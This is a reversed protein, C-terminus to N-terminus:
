DAIVRGLTRDNGITLRYLYVGTALGNRDLPLTYTRGGNVEGSFLVAVLRGRADVLDLHAKGGHAATFQLTCDTHFPNPWVNVSTGNTNAADDVGTTTGSGEVTITQVRTVTNGCADTATYTRTILYGDICDSGTSEETMTVDVEGACGDMAKCPIAAPIGDCPVTMDEPVCTLVPAQTDVMSVLQSATATNGCADTASWIRVLSYAGPCNGPIMTEDYDVEVQPDCGDEAWVDAPPVESGCEVTVADPVGHLVPAADDVVNIVQTATATNGCADTSTWTRLVKYSGACAGKETHETFTVETVQKKCADEAWVQGADEPVEGCGVTIDAPVNMLTPAIHDEITVTQVCSEFHGSEDGITWTRTLITPCGGSFADHWSAYNPAPCTLIKRVVPEGIALPELSSGCEVTTDRACAIILPGDCGTCTEKIVVVSSDATCGNPGTVTLTYFGAQAVFPDEENSQFGDVSTWHFTAGATTSGGALQVGEAECPIMDGAASVNPASFDATVAVTAYATCGNAGTVALTYFGPVDVVPDTDTSSFFGSGDRWLFTVNPSSSGGDLMVTPHACDLMGGEATIDPHAADMTVDVLVTRMCGNTATVTFTYAGPLAVSADETSASFGNPGSWAFSVGATTSSGDLLLPIHNCDIVGGTASADPVNNDLAVQASAQSSCGNDGTVVLTYTGAATVVPNQDNSTFGNPGTWAFGGNGSGMLMVSTTNCTLTGGTAQAGPVENDLAVQAAAQSSCGNEGTVVLTYTGAESVVPNQDNSAFGNPGTWAYDGNGNGMLMVSTTNCTLTGGTAQASPVENDLDVQASAQSSCGNDGTVILTYTGAATVVPNQDNSTFGNPGTWAFDGNGSGMLMVSTTNCTLTGGTAQAGPVENDLDVQASAQSSCGNDGTVVLTYTGAESVVPNQDNSAFGNPGTWAFDGNGSGMLMVSTTNCTLTGGNAQAGPVENDLAVQAAAQSSCGNDGTVVLSYTGAESVMPNQDNSAFGNPGTWAFDGNGSGMLMVSTTNCTLTGGTAQAGPVENDLDVQASAQSSCGNEGTVILTYTGAATVVPNQDNSAFGDPGTWAF